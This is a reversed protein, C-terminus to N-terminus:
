DNLDSGFMETSREGRRDMFKSSLGSESAVIRVRVRQVALASEIRM